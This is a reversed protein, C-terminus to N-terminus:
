EADSKFLEGPKGPFVEFGIYRLREDDSIRKVDQKVDEAM